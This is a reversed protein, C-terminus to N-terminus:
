LRGLVKDLLSFANQRGLFFDTRPITDFSDSLNRPTQPISYALGNGPRNIVSDAAFPDVATVGVGNNASIRLGMLEGARRAIAGTLAQAFQDADSQSPTFGQLAMAPVFVVGEDTRDTNFPDSRESFGFPNTNLFTQSRLDFNFGSFPSFIPSIPDGTSSLYITSFIGGEFGPESSSTAFRVDFGGGLGGVNQFVSNLNLITRQLVYETVDLGNIFGSFGLTRADFGELTIPLGGARLWDIQGGGVEILFLQQQRQITGSGETVVEIAYDTNYAGQVYVAFTGAQGPSGARDPVLFDIFFDGNADYGYRSTGNDAITTNAVGSRKNFDTPSFVLL